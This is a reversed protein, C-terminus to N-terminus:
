SPFVMLERATTMPLINELYVRADELARDRMWSIIVRQLEPLHINEALSSDLPHYITCVPEPPPDQLCRTGWLDNNVSLRVTRLPHHVDSTDM